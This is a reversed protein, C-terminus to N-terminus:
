DNGEEGRSKEKGGRVDSDGEAEHTGWENKLRKHLSPIQYASWIM